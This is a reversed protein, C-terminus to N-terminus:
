RDRRPAMRVGVLGGILCAGLGVALLPVWPPMGATPTAPVIPLAFVFIANGGQPPKIEPHLSLVRREPSATDGGVPVAIYQRGAVEYSIAHGSVPGSVPTEWLVQGSAADFAFFRRNVDGGFVLDGGTAVLSGLVGARREHRWAPRGTSLSVADVRGIRTPDSAKPDPIMVWSTAYGDAPTPTATNGTLLMCMNQQPQYMLGTRPSYAGAPWDKGGGLSPCVMLEQFPAGVLAENITVRGTRPDIDSIVNQHITESAWLFEGTKRDLTYILGTKGPIGTVVARSEGPRVARTSGACQRPIPRSSRDVVCASTSTISTGTTARCTSTTGPSPPGDEVDLALTSNSFLVDGGPTGRLVELSPAPM